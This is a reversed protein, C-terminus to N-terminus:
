SPGRASIAACGRTDLQKEGTGAGDRSIPCRVDSRRPGCVATCVLVSAMFCECMQLWLLLLLLASPRTDSCPKPWGGHMSVMYHM